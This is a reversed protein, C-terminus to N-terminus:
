FFLFLFLFFGARGDNLDTGRLGLSVCVCLRLCLPSIFLSLRCFHTVSCCRGRIDACVFRFALFNVVLFLHLGLEDDGRVEEEIRGGRIDDM